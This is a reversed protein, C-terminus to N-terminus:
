IAIEVWVYAGNKRKCIYVNDTGGSTDNNVIFTKGRLNWSATPLADIKPIFMQGDIPILDQTNVGTNKYKLYIRDGNPTVNAIIDGISYKTTSPYDLIAVTTKVLGNTVLNGSNDVISSGYVKNQSTMICDAGITAVNYEGIRGIIFNEVNNIDYATQTGTGNAVVIKGISVNKIRRTSSSERYCKLGFLANKGIINGIDLNNIFKDNYLRLKVVTDVDKAQYGGKAVDTYYSINNIRSDVIQGNLEVLTKGDLQVAQGVIANGNIKVDGNYGDALLLYENINVGNITDFSIDCVGLQTSTGITVGYVCDNINIRDGFNLKICNNIKIGYRLKKNNLLDGGINIGDPFSINTPPATDSVVLGDINDNIAKAHGFWHIESNNLKNTVVLNGSLAWSFGYESAIVGEYGEQPVPIVIDKYVNPQLVSLMNNWKENLTAGKFNLINYKEKSNIITDVSIGNDQIVAKSSTLPFVNSGKNDQLQKIMGNM